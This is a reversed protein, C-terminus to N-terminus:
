SGQICLNNLHAQDLSVLGKCSLIEEPQHCSFNSIHLMLLVPHAMTAELFQFVAEPQCGPHFPSRLEVVALIQIQGCGAHAQVYIREWDGSLPGAM